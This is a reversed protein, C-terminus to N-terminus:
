PALFDPNDHINGIPVKYKEPENVMFWFLGQWDGNGYRVVAQTAIADYEIVGIGNKSSRLLDGEFYCFRDKKLLQGVTGPIVEFTVGIGDTLMIYCQIPDEAFNRRLEGEVWESNDIRKGRFLYRSNNSIETM